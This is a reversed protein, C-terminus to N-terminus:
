QFMGMTILGYFSIFILLNLLLSDVRDLMGGHGPFITGFDKIRCQRKISSFILDGWVAGIGLILALIAAIWYGNPNTSYPFIAYFATGLITAMAVGGIVGEWTKKPSTIPAFKHKGFLMGCVLAFTDCCYTTFVVYGIAKIGLTERIFVIGQSAVCILFTMTFLYFVDNVMFEKTTVEVALLMILFIALVVINVRVIYPSPITGFSATGDIYSIIFYWLFIILAALMTIIYVAPNWHQGKGTKLIEIVGGIAVVASFVVTCWGGFYLLPVAIAILIAATIIRKKM